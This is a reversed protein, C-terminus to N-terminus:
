RLLVALRLAFCVRVREPLHGAQYSIQAFHNLSTIHLAAKRLLM